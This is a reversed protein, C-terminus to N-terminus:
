FVRVRVKVRVRVRVSILKLMIPLLPLFTVWSPLMVRSATILIARDM